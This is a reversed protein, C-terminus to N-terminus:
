GSRTSRGPYKFGSLDDARARAQGRWMAVGIVEHLSESNTRQRGRKSVVPILGLILSATTSVAASVDM